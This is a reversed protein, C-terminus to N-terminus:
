MTDSKRTEYMQAKQADVISQNEYLHSRNEDSPDSIGIYTYVAGDSSTIDSSSKNLTGYKNLESGLSNQSQIDTMSTSSKPFMPTIENGLSRRNLNQINPTQTHSLESLSRRYLPKQQIFNQSPHRLAENDAWNDVKFLLVDGNM